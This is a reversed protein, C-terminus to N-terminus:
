ENMMTSRKSKESNDPKPSAFMAKKNERIIRSLSPNSRFLTTPPEYSSKITNDKSHSQEEYDM